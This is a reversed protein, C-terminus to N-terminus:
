IEDARLTRLQRGPHLRARFLIEDAYINGIGAIRDQRLLFAKLTGRRGAILARLRDLTFELSLPEVGLARLGSVTTLDAAGILDVHGFRRQDVFRLDDRGLGLVLRTHARFPRDRPVVLFDGTMRLHGVMVLDGSLDFLLYKGRRAISQISRGRVRQAFARPSPSRVVSPDRVEVRTIRRRAATRRLFRAVGEVDPLEPM